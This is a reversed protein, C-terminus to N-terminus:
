TRGQAITHAHGVMGWRCIRLLVTHILNSGNREMCRGRMVRMHVAYSLGYGVGIRCASVLLRSAQGSLACPCRGRPNIERVGLGGFIARPRTSSPYTACFVLQTVLCHEGDGHGEEREDEAQTGARASRQDDVPAKGLLGPLLPFLPIFPNNGSDGGREGGLKDGQAARTHGRSSRGGEVHAVHSMSQRLLV